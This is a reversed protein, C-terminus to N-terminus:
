FNLLHDCVTNANKTVVMTPFNQVLLCYFYLVMNKVVTSNVNKFHVQGRKGEKAFIIDFNRPYHFYVKFRSSGKKIDVIEFSPSAKIQTLTM